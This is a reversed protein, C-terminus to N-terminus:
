GNDDGIIDYDDMGCVVDRLEEESMAAAKESVSFIWEGDERMRAEILGARYLAWIDSQLDKM